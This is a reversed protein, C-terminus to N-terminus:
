RKVNSIPDNKLRLPKKEDCLLLFSELLHAGM